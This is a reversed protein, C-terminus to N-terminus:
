LDLYAYYYRLELVKSHYFISKELKVNPPVKAPIVGTSETLSKKKKKMQSTRTVLSVHPGNLKSIIKLM